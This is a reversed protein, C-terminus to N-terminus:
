RAFSLLNGKLILTELQDLNELGAVEPWNVGFALTLVRLYKCRALPRYDECTTSHLELVRLRPLETLPGLDWVEAGSLNVEELATLFRLAQLDRVPRQNLYTSKSWTSRTAWIEAARRLDEESYRPEYAPNLNRQRNREAGAEWGEFKGTKHRAHWHSMVEEVLLEVTFREDVTRAEALAWKVFVSRFLM